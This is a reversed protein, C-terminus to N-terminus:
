PTLRWVLCRPFSHRRNEVGDLAHIVKLALTCSSKKGEKKLRAFANKVFKEYRVQM